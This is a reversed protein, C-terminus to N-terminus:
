RKDKKGLAKIKDHKLLFIYYFLVLKLGSIKIKVNYYPLITFILLLILGM